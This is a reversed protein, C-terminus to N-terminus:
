KGGIKKPCDDIDCLCIAGKQHKASCTFVNRTGQRNSLKERSPCDENTVKIDWERM